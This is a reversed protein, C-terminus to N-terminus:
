RGFKTRAGVGVIDSMEKVGAWSCSDELGTGAWPLVRSDLVSDVVAAIGSSM